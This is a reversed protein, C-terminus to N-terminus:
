LSQCDTECVLITSIFFGSGDGSGPFFERVFHCHIGWRLVTGSCSRLHHFVPEGQGDNSPHETSGGTGQAFDRIKKKRIIGQHRGASKTKSEISIWVPQGYVGSAENGATFICGRDNGCVGIASDGDNMRRREIRKVNLLGALTEQPMGNEMLRRALSDSIPNIQRHHGVIVFKGDEVRNETIQYQFLPRYRRTGDALIECEMIEMLRREKNELQKCFAIIPYAETVFGMLTEDSMDVARKCLSVMRRYTAECSMSHITTVVAVGTRAAEQAANAEPGRMEGVVIIDPNFRLAMDLLAIQDVRQRENESDRTLTHIVSNVVRGDKRRVLALERSGNEISYIRKGDPITTLLWGLLTTKGSSTAGAVCM